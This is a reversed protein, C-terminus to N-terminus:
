GDGVWNSGRKVQVKTDIAHAIAHHERCLPALYRPNHSATLAFRRTHHITTASRQCGDITCRDGYEKQLYRRIKVPIYRSKVDMRGHQEGHDIEASIEEKERTIDLRRRELFERLLQNVDIGKGQLVLLEDLVDPELDLELDLESEGLRQARLSKRENQPKFLGDQKENKVDKVLTEIASQSLQQVKGAWFEDNEPTTVSTVRTLKNISVKGNVLLGKLAPKDKFREDLNLALRVQKESLGALKFAFEFISGFGKKEYLRRRNVEPLLGTFKRRWMLANEGYKKCLTYLEKDNLYKM